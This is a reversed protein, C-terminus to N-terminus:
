LSLQVGFLPANRARIQKSSLADVANLNGVFRSFRMLVGGGVEMEEGEEDGHRGEFSLLEGCLSGSMRTKVDSISVFSMSKQADDM